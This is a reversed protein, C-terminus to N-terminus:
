TRVYSASAIRAGAYTYTITLTEVLAGTGDYQKLEETAIRFGTYTYDVVRIPTTKTADTWWGEQTLRWGSYTTEYYCSEDIEHTLQDLLRHAEESLSAIVWVWAAAVATQQYAVNQDKTYVTTGQKPVSFVWAAGDWQAIEGAHGIFAGAPAPGVLVRYGAVAGPPNNVNVQDVPAQWAAERTEGVSRVAGDALTVLGKNQVFQTQKDTAPDVAQEEWIVSEDDRPGDYGDPTRGM